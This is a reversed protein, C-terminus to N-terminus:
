KKKNQRLEIAKEYPAAIPNYHSLLTEESDDVSLDADPGEGCGIVSECEFEGEVDLDYPDKEIMRLGKCYMFCEISSARSSKPKVLLVEDFFQKFHRVVYGTDESRFCKGVFSCGERGIKTTISLASLLLETQFYEDLDHIGTVDPAGDCLVLECKDKMYSLIKNKCKESTIDEQIFIVNPIPRIAQLDISLITGKARESAVQSWSGPASCLDVINTVNKFINFHQDIQLIKFASRARYGQKKALRYYIDRKDKSSAGM